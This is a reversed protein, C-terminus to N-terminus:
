KKKRRKPIAGILASAATAFLQFFEPAQEVEEPKVGVHKRIPDFLVSTVAPVYIPALPRLYSPLVQAVSPTLLQTVATPGKRVAAQLKARTKPNSMIKQVLKKIINTFTKLLVTNAVSSPSPPTNAHLSSTAKEGEMLRELSEADAELTYTAM